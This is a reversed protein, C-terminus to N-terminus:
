TGPLDINRLYLSPSLEIIQDSRVASRIDQYRTELTYRCTVKTQSQM